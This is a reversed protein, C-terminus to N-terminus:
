EPPRTADRLIQEVQQRVLEARLRKRREADARIQVLRREVDAIELARLSDEDAMHRTILEELRQRITRVRSSDSVVRYDRQLTRAQAEAAFLQSMLRAKSSDQQSLLMQRQVTLQAIESWYEALSRTRLSDLVARQLQLRAYLDSAAAEAQPPRDRAIQDLITRM